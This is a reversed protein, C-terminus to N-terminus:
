IIKQKKLFELISGLSVFQVGLFFALTTIENSIVKPESQRIWLSVDNVFFVFAFVLCILGPIILIKVTKRYVFLLFMSSLVNFPYKIGIFSKGAERNKINVDVESYTLNRFKTDLIIQQAANYNGIIKFDELWKKSVYIFGNSTDNIKLGILRFIIRFFLMGFRKLYGPTFNHSKYFRNGQILDTPKSILKDLFLDIDSVDMQGDSDLKIVGDVNNEVSHKFLNSIANGLGKNNLGFLVEFDSNKLIKLSNDTSGDDYFVVNLHLDKYSVTSLYEDLNKILNPLNNEENFVPICINIKM